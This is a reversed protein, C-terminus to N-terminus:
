LAQAMQGQRGRAEGGGALSFCAECQCGRFKSQKKQRTQREKVLEVSCIGTGRGLAEPCTGEERNSEKANSEGAREQRDM